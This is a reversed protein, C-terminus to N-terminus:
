LFYLLFCSLKSLSLQLWSCKTSTNLLFPVVTKDYSNASRLSLFICHYRSLSTIRVDMAPPNKELFIIPRRLDKWFSLPSLVLTYYCHLKSLFFSQCSFKSGLGLLLCLPKGCKNQWHFGSRGWPSVFQKSFNMSEKRGPRAIIWLIHPTEKLSPKRWLRKLTM